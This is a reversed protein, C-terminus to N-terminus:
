KDIKKDVSNKDCPFGILESVPNLPVKEPTISKKIFIKWLTMNDWVSSLSYGSDVYIAGCLSEFVDSLIKPAENKFDKIYDEILKNLLQISNDFRLNNHLQYMHISVFALTEHQVAKQRLDTMRGASLKPFSNFIHQTVILDIIADGLFELREFCPTNSNKLSAHTLAELKLSNNNFKYSLNNIKIDNQKENKPLLKEYDEIIGMWKIFKIADEESNLFCAGIISEVVDAVRKSGMERQITKSWGPPNWNSEKFAENIIYGGLKKKCGLNYLKRNNVLQDKAASLMGENYNPHKNYVYEVVTKKLVCDGLFELREYDFPLFSSKSIIAELFKKADNLKIGIENQLQDAILYSEVMTTVHPVYMMDSYLRISCFKQCLSPIICPLNSKKTIQLPEIDNKFQVKTYDKIQKKLISAEILSEKENTLSIGWKKLYYEKYSKFQTDPFKSNISLDNRRKKQVYFQSNHTTKLIFSDKSNFNKRIEDWDIKDNIFPLVICSPKSFNKKSLNFLTTMLNSYFEIAENFNSNLIKLKKTLVFEFEFKKGDMCIEISPIKPLVDPYLFCLNIDFEGKLTYLFFTNTLEKKLINPVIKAFTKKENVFKEDDEEIEDQSQIKSKFAHFQDDLAGCKHLEVVALFCVEQKAETKKFSKASFEETVMSNSPLILKCTFVSFEENQVKMETFIYEPSLQVNPIGSKLKACYTTLIQVATDFTLIAGTPTKYTKSDSLIYKKKMTDNKLIGLVDDEINMSKVIKAHQENTPDAFTYFISGDARARGRRQIYKNLTAFLDFNIVFNCAGVDIGEEVVNTACLINIEGKKFKEITEHQKKDGTGTIAKFNINKLEEQDEMIKEIIFTSVKREIFIIGCISKDSGKKIKILLNILEQVKTSISKKNFNTIIYDAYIDRINKWKQKLSDNIHLFKDPKHNELYYELPYTGLEQLFYLCGQLYRSIEKNNKFIEIDNKIHEEFIEYTDKEYLILKETTLKIKDLSSFFYYECNMNKKLEESKKESVTTLKNLEYDKSMSIFIPSATLGLIKPRINEKKISHYFQKLILNYPSKSVCNHCEDYILLGCDQSLDLNGHHLAKKLTDPTFFLCDNNEIENRWKEKSWYDINKSEGTYKEIRLTPLFKMMSTKQQELLVKTQCSFFIKQNEKLRSHMYDMLLAAVLTKGQGTAGVVILNKKKATEFAKQQYDRPKYM